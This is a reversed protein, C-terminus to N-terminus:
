SRKSMGFCDDLYNKIIHEEPEYGYWVGNLMSTTKIILADLIADPAKHFKKMWVLRDCVWSIRDEKHSERDLIRNIEKISTTVKM